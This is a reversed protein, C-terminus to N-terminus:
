LESSFAIWGGGKMTIFYPESVTLGAANFTVSRTVGTGYYGSVSTVPILEADQLVSRTFYFDSVNSLSIIPTLTRMKVPLNFVARVSTAASAIGLNIIDISPQGKRSIIYFYKQCRRLQEGYDPIENLVWAGDELHALTQQDGLELKAALVTNETNFTYWIANSSQLSIGVSGTSYFEQYTGTSRTITGSILGRQETLVSATITRGDLVEPYELPQMIIVRDDTNAPVVKLGTATLEYSGVKSGYNWKWRDLGYVNYTTAGSRPIGRQNIPNVFYWNDLLNPNCLQTKDAKQSLERETEEANTLIEREIEGTKQSLENKLKDLGGGVAAADAALGAQTLTDDILVTAQEATAKGTIRYDVLFSNGIRSVKVRDGAKLPCTANAKYHKLTAQETGPLVLSVGDTYVAGVTAVFCSDSM